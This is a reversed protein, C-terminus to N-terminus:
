KKRKKNRWWSGICTYARSVATACLACVELEVRSVHSDGSVTTM